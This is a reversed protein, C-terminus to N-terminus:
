RMRNEIFINESLPKKIKQIKKSNKESNEQGPQTHVSNPVLIKKESERSIEERKALFLAPFLNGLKKFKKAIEKRFKRTPTPYSRFEPSFNKGRKKM